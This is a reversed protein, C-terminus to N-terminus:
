QPVQKPMPSSPRYDSRNEKDEKYTPPPPGPYVLYPTSARPPLLIDPNAIFLPENDSAATPSSPTNVPIFNENLLVTGQVIDQETAHGDVLVLGRVPRPPSDLINPTGNGAQTDRRFAQVSQRFVMRREAEEEEETFAVVSEQFLSIARALNATHVM